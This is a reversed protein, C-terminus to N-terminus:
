DTLLAAVEGPTAQRSCDSLGAAPMALAPYVRAFLARQEDAYGIVIAGDIGCVRRDGPQLCDGHQLGFKGTGSNGVGIM